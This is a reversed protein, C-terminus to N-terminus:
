IMYLAILAARHLIDLWKLLVLRQDVVSPVVVLAACGWTCRRPWMRAGKSGLSTTICSRAKRTKIRAAATGGNNYAVNSSIKKM